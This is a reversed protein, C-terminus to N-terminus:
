QEAEQLAHFFREAADDQPFILEIRLTDAAAELASDFRCVTTLTRVIQDGMRFRPCAVIESGPPPPEKGQLALEVRQALPALHPAEHLERRMRSLMAWLVEDWNEILEPGLGPQLMLEHLVPGDPGLDQLVPGLFRRAGANADVVRYNGDLVLGPYPEHRELMQQIVRRFPAMEPDNLPRMRHPGPLGAAAYLANRQELPVELGQALRQITPATPRSRGTELFSLHRPSMNIQTALDLQSLRRVGRWHKLLRGLPSATM